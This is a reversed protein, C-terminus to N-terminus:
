ALKRLYGKFDSFLNNRHYSAWFIKSKNSRSAQGALRMHGEKPFEVTYIYQEVYCTKSRTLGCNVLIVYSITTMCIMPPRKMTPLIKPNMGIPM